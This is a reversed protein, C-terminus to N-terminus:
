LHAYIKSKNIIINYAMKYDENLTIANEAICFSYDLLAKNVFIPEYRATIRIIYDWDVLRKLTEDWFGVTDVCERHHVFTNICIYNGVLLKNFDFAESRVGSFYVKNTAADKRYEDYMCYAAKKQVGGHNLADWMTSLFEPHWADDSDLYAILDGKAQKLAHNRAVCVGSHPIRYYRVKDSLYPSVTGELNDSSGDDVIILEYDQFTQSLVSKIAKGVLGARNWVPMVVSFM